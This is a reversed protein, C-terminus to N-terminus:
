ADVAERYHLEGPTGGTESSKCYAQWDSYAPQLPYGNEDMVQILDYYGGEIGFVRSPRGWVTSNTYMSHTGKPLLTMRFDLVSPANLDFGNLNEGSPIIQAETPESASDFRFKYVLDLIEVLGWSSAKDHFSWVKDGGVRIKYQYGDSSDPNLAGQSLGNGDNSKAFSMLASSDGQEALWFVGRLTEPLPATGIRIPGKQSVAECRHTRELM